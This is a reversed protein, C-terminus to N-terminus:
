QLGSPFPVNGQGQSGCCPHGEVERLWQVWPGLYSFLWVSCAFPFFLREPSFSLLILGGPSSWTLQAPQVETQDCCCFSAAWPMESREEKQETKHFLSAPIAWHQSYSSRRVEKRRDLSFMQVALPGWKQGHRSNRCSQNEWSSM